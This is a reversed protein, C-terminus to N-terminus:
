EYKYHSIDDAIKQSELIVDPTAVKNGYIVPEALDVQRALLKAAPSENKDIHNILEHNTYCSSVPIINYKRLVMISRRLLMALHESFPLDDFSEDSLLTENDSNKKDTKFKFLRPLKLVGSLYLARISFILILLLIFSASLEAFLRISEGSPLYERFVYGLDNEDFDLGFSKLWDLIAQFILSANQDKEPQWIQDVIADLESFVWPKESTATNPTDYFYSAFANCDEQSTFDSDTVVLTQDFFQGQRISEPGIVNPCPTSM